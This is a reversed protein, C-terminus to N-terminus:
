IMQTAHVVLVCKWAFVQFGTNRHSIAEDLIGDNKLSIESQCFNSVQWESLKFFECYSGASWLSDYPVKRRVDCGSHHHKHVNTM